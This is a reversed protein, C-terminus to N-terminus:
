VDYSLVRVNRVVRRQLLCNKVREDGFGALLLVFGDVSCTASGDDSTKKTKDQTTSCISRQKKSIARKNRQRFVDGTFRVRGPHRLRRV